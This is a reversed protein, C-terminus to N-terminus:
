RRKECLKLLLLEMLLHPEQKGTKLSLDARLILELAQILRKESFSRAQILAREATYPHMGLSKALADKTARSGEASKVALLNRFHSVLYGLLAVPEVGDRLLERVGHVAKTSDRAGIADSLSFIRYQPAPSALEDVLDRTVISNPYLYCAVKDAEVALKQPFAGVVTLFHELVERDASLKRREFQKEVWPVLAKHGGPFQMVEGLKQLDASIPKKDTKKEKKGQHSPSPEEVLWFIVILYERVPKQLHKEIAARTDSNLKQYDKILVVRKKAAVPLEDMVARFEGLPFQRGEFVTFNFPRLNKEMVVALLAEVYEEAEVSNEGMLFYFPSHHTGPGAAKKKTRTAGTRKDPM